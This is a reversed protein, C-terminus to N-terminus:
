RVKLHLLYFHTFFTVLRHCPFLELALKDNMKLKEQEAPNSGPDNCDNHLMKIESWSDGNGWFAKLLKGSM